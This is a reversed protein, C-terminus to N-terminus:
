RGRRLGACVRAAPMAIGGVLREGVRRGAVVRGPPAGGGGWRGGRGGRRGGGGGGLRVPRPGRFHAARVAAVAVGHPRLAATVDEVAAAFDGLPVPKM